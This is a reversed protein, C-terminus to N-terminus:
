SIRGEAATLIQAFFLSRMGRNKARYMAMDANRLLTEDDRGDNPFMAIGISCSVSCKHGDLDIERELAAVLKRLVIATAVDNTGRLVAAFQDGGLRAVTDSKRVVSELRRGVEVLLDDGAQHGLTENVAKFRGLAIFCLAFRTHDRNSACITQELRDRLLSRNPLGTLDDYLAQQHLVDKQANLKEVLRAVYLAAWTAIWLVLLVTFALTGAMQHIFSRRTPQKVKYIFTAVYPTGAISKRTWVYAHTGKVIQSHGLGKGIRAGIGAFPAQEPVRYVASGDPKTIIISLHGQYDTRIQQLAALTQDGRTLASRVAAVTPVLVQRVLSLQEKRATQAATDYAIRGILTLASIAVLAFVLLLRLRLSM